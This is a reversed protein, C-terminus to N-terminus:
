AFTDVMGQHRVPLAAGGSHIAAAAVEGVGGSSGGANERRQKDAFGAQQERPSQDSVMANGLMIGNDALMDRLKPMAQEVADRVAAHPSTFFATAQDGSINIVVDLPGLNPPNLHLEATQEHQTALWTIKQNFEDGWKDSTVPTNLVVQATAGAVATVPAAGGQALGIAMSADPLAAERDLTKTINASLAAGKGAAELAASFVGDRAIDTVAAAGPKTDAQARFLAPEASDGALQRVVGSLGTTAVPQPSSGAVAKAAGIVDGSFMGVLAPALSDTKEAAVSSKAGVPVPLLTALMDGPVAGGAGDPAQVLLGANEGTTADKKTAGNKTAVSVPLLVALMDAPLTSVVDPVPAQQESGNAPAADAPAPNTSSPSAAQRNNDQTDANARQRALVRDFPETVQAANNDLPAPAQATATSPTITNTVPLNQM